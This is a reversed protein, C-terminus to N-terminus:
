MTSLRNTFLFVIVFKSGFVIRYLKHIKFFLKAKGSYYEDIKTSKIVLYVM